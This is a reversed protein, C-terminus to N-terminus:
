AAELAALRLITASYDERAGRVAALHEMVAKPLYVFVKGSATLDAPDPTQGPAIAAYAALSIAIKTM